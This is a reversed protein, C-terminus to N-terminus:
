KKNETNNQYISFYISLLNETPSHFIYILLTIVLIIAAAFHLAEMTRYFFFESVSVSFAM